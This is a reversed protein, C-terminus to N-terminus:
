KSRVVIFRFEFVCTYALKALHNLTRKRVLHNNTRIGYSDSSVESIAGAELLSNRPMWAFWLTYIWESVRVHCTIVYLCTFNYMFFLKRKSWIRNKTQNNFGFMGSHFSLFRLLLLVLSVRFVLLVNVLSFWNEYPLNRNLRDLQYFVNQKAM